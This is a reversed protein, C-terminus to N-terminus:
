VSGAVRPRDASIRTPWTRPRSSLGPASTAPRWRCWLISRPAWVRAGNLSRNARYVQRWYRDLNAASREAPVLRIAAIDWLTDGVEVIHWAVTTGDAEERHRPAQTGGTKGSHRPAGTGATEDHDGHAGTGGAEGRHGPAANSPGGGLWPPLPAASQRPNAASRGTGDGAGALRAMRDGSRNSGPEERNRFRRVWQLALLREVGATLREV